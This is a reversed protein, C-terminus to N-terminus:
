RLRTTANRGCGSCGSSKLIPPNGPASLRGACGGGCPRSGVLQASFRMTFLEYFRSPAGPFPPPETYRYSCTMSVSNCTMSYAYSLDSIGSGDCFFPLFVVFGFLSFGPGANPFADIYMGCASGQCAFGETVVSFPPVPVGFEPRPEYYDTRQYCAFGTDPDITEGTIRGTVAEVFANPTGSFWFQRREEYADTIRVRGYPTGNEDQECCCDNDDIVLDVGNCLTAIQPGEAVMRRICGSNATCDCCNVFPVLGDGNYRIANPPAPVYGSAPDVVACGYPSLNYTGCSTIGCVYVPTGESTCPQSRIYLTGQPCVENACASFGVCQVPDLGEVIDSNPPPATATVNTVTWCLGDILVTRNLPSYLPTDPDGICRVTDCIWIEREPLDEGLCTPGNDCQDLRRWQPCGNCCRAICEPTARAIRRGVRVWTREKILISSM